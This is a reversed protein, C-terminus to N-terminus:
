GTKGKSILRYTELSMFNEEIHDIKGDYKTDLKETLDIAVQAKKDLRAIDRKYTYITVAILASLLGGVIAIMWKMLLMNSNINALHTEITPPGIPDAAVETPLYRALMIIVAIAAILIIATIKARKFSM